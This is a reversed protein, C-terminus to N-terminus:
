ADSPIMRQLQDEDLMGEDYILLIVDFPTLNFEELFDELPKNELYDELIKELEQENM